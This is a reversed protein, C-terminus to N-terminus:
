LIAISKTFTTTNNIIGNITNFRSKQLSQRSSESTAYIGLFGLNHRLQSTVSVYELLVYTSIHLHMNLSSLYIFSTQTYLIYM